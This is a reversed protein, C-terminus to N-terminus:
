FAWDGFFHQEWGNWEGKDKKQKAPVAIKRGGLATAATGVPAPPKMLGEALATERLQKEKEGLTSHKGQGLIRM